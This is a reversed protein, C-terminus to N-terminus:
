KRILDWVHSQRLSAGLQGRIRGTGDGSGVLYQIQALQTPSLKTVDVKGYGYEILSHRASSQAHTLRDRAELPLAFIVGAILAVTIPKM